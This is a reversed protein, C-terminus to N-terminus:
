RVEAVSVEGGVRGLVAQAAVEDRDDVVAITAGARVPAHAEHRTRRIRSRRQTRAGLSVKRCLWARVGVDAPRGNRSAALGLLAQQVLDDADHRNCGLRRAHDVAFALHPQVLAEFAREDRHKCWASWLLREATRM